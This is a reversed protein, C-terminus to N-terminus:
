YRYILSGLFQLKGQKKENLVPASNFHMIDATLRVQNFSISAGIKLRTDPLESLPTYPKGAEARNFHAISWYLNLSEQLYHQGSILLTKTDRDTSAGISRGFYRYGTKYLHHEYACKKIVDGLANCHTDMAEIAVDHYTNFLTFRSSLGLLLISKAPAGGAEDEGIYQGYFSIPTSNAKTDWRWDFGALQNGPEDKGINEGNDGNDKGLLLNKFTTVNERRNKGGWQATRTLGIELSNFPKFSVRLGLLKARPIHRESELQNIFASLQWPGIWSLWPSQFAESYNRQLIVGPSPRANTSLILSNHQAPGWWHEIAGVAISWNGVLTALYSGDLRVDTSHDAFGADDKLVTNINLEAAFSDSMWGMNKSISVQERHLEGFSNLIPTESAANATIQRQTKQQARDLEHRVYALSYSISGTMEAESTYLQLDNAIGSWM